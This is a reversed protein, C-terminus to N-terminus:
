YKMYKVCILPPSPTRVITLNLLQCVVCERNGRARVWGCVWGSLGSTLSRRRNPEDRLANGECPMRETV